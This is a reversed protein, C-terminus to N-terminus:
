TWCADTTTGTEICELIKSRTVTRCDYDINPDLLNRLVQLSEHSCAANNNKIVLIVTLSKVRPFALNKVEVAFNRTPDFPKSIAGDLLVNAHGCAYKAFEASARVWFSSVPNIKCTKCLCIFTDKSSKKGCWKQDDLINGLLTNQLPVFHNREKCFQDVLDKTDSWFMTKDCSHTFPYDEFLPRYAEEPFNCPDKGVYTKEFTSLVEECRQSTQPFAECRRRFTKRFQSTRPSLLTAPPVIVVVALLLVGGAIALIIKLEM